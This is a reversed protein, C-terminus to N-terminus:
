LFMVAVGGVALVAGAVARFSVKEKFILVSAPVLLVPVISMLTSATGADTWRVAALSGSVGLFPGFFAGISAYGMAPRDRVAERIRPWWGALSLVLAFGLLGALVRIEAGQFPDVGEMARRSLLLGLSQGLAGLMGMLLGFPTMRTGSGTATNRESVVWAVGAVILGMGLFGWPGMPEGLLLWSLLATLPPVLSMLLLATRAGLLIIAKFLCFDGLVFGLLGSAALLGIVPGPLAAPAPSGHTLTLWAVLIVLAMALRIFNLSLSGIRRGAAEFALSTCAWCCATALAAIEGAHAFPM